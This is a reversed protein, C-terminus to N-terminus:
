FRWRWNLIKVAELEIQVRTRLCCKDGRDEFWYEYSGDYQVMEGYSTKRQRWARHKEKKKRKPIWIGEEIMIARITGKDRKIKHREELKESALLPGFDSYHKKILSIIEQREMDPMRRNGTRGRNGHTLGKAGKEKVKKKLRRIHRTSLNLLKAADAGNFEKDIVKKIIDYRKIEKQSMIIYNDM